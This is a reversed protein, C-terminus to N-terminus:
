KYPKDIVIITTETLMRDVISTETLTSYREDDMKLQHLDYYKLKCIVSVDMTFKMLCLCCYNCYIFRIM